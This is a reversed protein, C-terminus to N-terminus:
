LRRSVGARADEEARQGDALYLLWVGGSGLSFLQLTIGYGYLDAALGFTRLGTGALLLALTFGRAVVVPPLGWWAHALRVAVFTIAM